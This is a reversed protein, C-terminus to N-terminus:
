KENIKVLGFSTIITIFVIPLWISIIPALDKTDGLFNFIYRVFYLSVALIVGLVLYSFKNRNKDINLMVVSSLITMLTVYIPYSFIQNLHLSIEKSSIIFNPDNKYSFLNWISVSFLNYFLSRIKEENFNTEFPIIDFSVKPENNEYVKVDYIKWKNNTIDAKEAEINKLLDFNNNFITISINELYNKNLQKANIFNINQNNEDKLWIGNETIAALYKNKESIENKVNYYFSKLEASINYFFIIVFIGFIFATISITNIINTNSLGFKKLADLENNELIKIFFFQGSILFIFPSIEYLISPLNLFTLTLAYYFSVDKDKLFNIEEFINLIFILSAFVLILQLLSYLYKKIIYKRYVKLM